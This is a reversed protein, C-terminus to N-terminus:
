TEKLEQEYKERKYKIWDAVNDKSGYSNAPANNYLFMCYQPLAALNIQDAKGAATMFDNCLIYYLFGGPPIGKELYDRMGGRMHPPLLFYGDTKHTRESMHPKRRSWSRLLM